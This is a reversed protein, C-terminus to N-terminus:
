KRLRIEALTDLLEDCRASLLPDSPIMDFLKGLYRGIAYSQTLQVGDVYLVPLQGYGYGLEYIVFLNSLSMVQLVRRTVRIYGDHRM